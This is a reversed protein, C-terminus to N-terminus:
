ECAVGDKDRDLGERYGPEGAQLPAVGAARAEACNEYYVGAPPDAPGPPDAPPPPPAPPPVPAPVAAPPPAPAQTAPQSAPPPVVPESTATPAPAESTVPAPPTPAVNSSDCASMLSGAAIAISAALFTRRM